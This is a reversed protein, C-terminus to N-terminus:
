YFYRQFSDLLGAEFRQITASNCDFKHMLEAIGNRVSNSANVATKTDNLAQQGLLMGVATYALTNAETADTRVIDLLSALDAFEKNIHYTKRIEPHGPERSVIEGYGNKVVKEPQAARYHTYVVHDDRLCGQYNEQYHTLYTNAAVKLLSSTKLLKENRDINRKEETSLTSSNRAIAKALGYFANTYGKTIKDAGGYAHQDLTKMTAVDTWFIANLYNGGPLRRFPDLGARRANFSNLINKDANPATWDGPYRYRKEINAFGQRDSQKDILEQLSTSVANLVEVRASRRQQAYQLAYDQASGSAVRRREEEVLKELTQLTKAQSNLNQLFQEHLQALQRHRREKAQRQELFARQQAAKQQEAYADSHQYVIQELQRCNNPFYYQMRDGFLAAILQAYQQKLIACDQEKIEIRAATLCQYVNDDSAQNLRFNQCALETASRQLLAQKLGEAQDCDPVQFDDPLKKDSSASVIAATFLNKIDTCQLSPVLHHYSAGNYVAYYQNLCRAAFDMDGAQYNVCARWYIRQDIKAAARALIACSPTKANINELKVGATRLSKRYLGAVSPCDAARLRNQYYNPRNARWQPTYSTMCKHVDPVSEPDANFCFRSADNPVTPSGATEDRNLPHLGTPSRHREQYVETQEPKSVTIDVAATIEFGSDKFQRVQYEGALGAGRLRYDCRPPNRLRRRNRTTATTEADKPFLGIWSGKIIPQCDTQVRIRENLTYVKKDTSLAFSAAPILMAGLTLLRLQKCVM